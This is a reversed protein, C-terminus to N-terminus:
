GAVNLVIKGRTHGTQNLEHAKAVDRLPLVTSVVPKIEGDDILTALKALQEANPQAVVFVGQGPAGEVLPEKSVLTGGEKVVQWSRAQTEGGVADFVIEVNEVVDEFKTTNYDIVKDAGLNRLYDHNRASATAIIYAGKWRALQVAFTGVGGAAGQILISQGAQLNAV